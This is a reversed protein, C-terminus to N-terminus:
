AIDLVALCPNSSLLVFTLGIVAAVSALITARSRESLLTERMLQADFISPSKVANM